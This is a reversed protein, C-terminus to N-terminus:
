LSPATNSPQDKGKGDSGLWILVGAVMPFLVHLGVIGWTGWPSVALNVLWGVSILGMALVPIM